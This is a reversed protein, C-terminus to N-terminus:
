RTERIPEIVINGEPDTIVVWVPGPPAQPLTVTVNFNGQRGTNAQRVEIADNGEPNDALSITVTERAPWDAGIVRLRLNRM